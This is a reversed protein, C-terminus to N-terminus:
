PRGPSSSGATAIAAAAGSTAAPGGKVVAPLERADRELEERSRDLVRVKRVAHVVRWIGWAGVVVNLSGVLALAGTLGVHVALASVGAAALFGYGVIALPVFVALRTLRTGLIRADALLELRVLKVRAAVLEVLDEATTRLKDAIDNKGDKASPM